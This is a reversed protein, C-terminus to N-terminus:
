QRAKRAIAMYFFCMIGPKTRLEHLLGAKLVDLEEESRSEKFLPRLVEFHAMLQKGM